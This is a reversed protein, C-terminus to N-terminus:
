LMEGIRYRTKLGALYYQIATADTLEVDGSGNVDGRLLEEKTFPIDMGAAYRQIYTVDLSTIEGDGNTDGLLTDDLAIFIIDNDTAYCEAETGEYGYIILGYNGRLWTVDKNNYIRYDENASLQLDGTQCSGGDSFIISDVNEPWECRWVNNGIINMKRGPWIDNSNGVRSNWMFVYVDTWEADNICYIYGTETDFGQKPPTNISYGLSLKGINIVNKPIVIQTLKDCEAFAYDGIRELSNPISITKLNCCGGFAGNQIEKIGENLIVKELSTCNLFTLPKIVSVGSPINILKLSECGYFANYGIETLTNPLFITELTTQRKFATSGIKTVPYGKIQEPIVLNSNEGSYSIISACNDEIVFSLGESTKEGKEWQAYVTKNSSFTTSTTIKTGGSSATYWGDFTYGNRVPTPLTGISGGYSIIKSTPSVTGGNPNFTVTVQTPIASWHAYLTTSENFTTSYTVYTYSSTYWGDFTYGERYPTPLVSLTGGKYVTTSTPSVSGGNPNFFVTLSAPQNVNVYFSKSSNLLYRGGGLTNSQWYSYRCTIIVTLDIYRNARVQCSVTDQAIIEVDFPANSTWAASQIVKTHESLFIYETDGVNINYTDFGTDALNDADTSAEATLAFSFALLMIVSLLVSLSRKFM